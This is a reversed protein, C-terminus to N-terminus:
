NVFTAVGALRRRWYPRTIDARRVKRSGSSAHIMQGGGVYIGVHSVRPPETRFFVLDGPRAADLPAGARFQEAATRPVAVGALSYAYKVLGSCDMGKPTTGGWVYPVGLLTEATRIIHARLRASPDPEAKPAPPPTTACGACMLLLAALYGSRIALGEVTTIAPSRPM